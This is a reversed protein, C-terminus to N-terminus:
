FACLAKAGTAKHQNMWVNFQGKPLGANHTTYIWPADQWFAEDFFLFLKDVTGMGMRDIAALRANSLPPHFAIKKQKLVGLPVTVLVADFTQASGDSLAIEVGTDSHHIQTVKSNLRIEYATHLAPLIQGYGERFVWDKGKYGFYASPHQQDLHKMLHQLNLNKLDTGLGNATTVKRIMRGHFFKHTPKGKKNLILDESSESLSFAVREAKVSDALATVPNDLDGVVFAGGLDVAADQSDDTWIRGGIRNRGEFVVTAIGAAHLDKAAALGAAGAGIVAVSKSGLTIISQANEQGSEIAAHVTSQYHTNMAEGAFFIRDNLPAGAIKLDEIGSGKAIHSYAGFTFPDRSWNTRLYGKFPLKTKINM